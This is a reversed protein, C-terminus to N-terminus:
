SGKGFGTPDALLKWCAVWYKKKESKKEEGVERDGEV